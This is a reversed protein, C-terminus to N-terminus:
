GDIVGIGRLLRMVDFVGWHEAIRGDEIRWSGFGTGEVVNGTPPEGTLSGRHTGRAIWRVWVVDGETAIADVSFRLDPFAARYHATQQKFEEPGRTEEPMATPDHGVFGPTFIADVLDLQGRSRIDDYVQVVLRKNEGTM